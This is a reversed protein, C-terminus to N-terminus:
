TEADFITGILGGKTECKNKSEYRTRMEEEFSRGFEKRLKLMCEGCVILCHTGPHHDTEGKLGCEECVVESM